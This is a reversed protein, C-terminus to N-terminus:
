NLNFTIGARLQEDPRGGQRAHRLGIDFALGDRIPIIVGALVAIMEEGGFTKEYHVEAVPRLPWSEPGELIAGAVMGGRGDRTLMPGINFHWAGWDRRDSALFTLGLGAGDDARIGPLLLSFESGLSIGPKDQLSGERLVTKVSAALDSFEDGGKDFVSNRGEVVAEWDPAFGYNLIAAPAIWQVGDDNHRWNLPALEIEWKGERAVAADTSDFPRYALAAMPWALLVAVMLAAARRFIV